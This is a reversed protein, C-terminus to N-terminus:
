DLDASVLVDEYLYNPVTEVEGGPYTIEWEADYKGEDPQETLTTRVRGTAGDVVVCTGTIVDGGARPRMVFRVDADTLDFAEGSARELTRDIPATDGTKVYIM